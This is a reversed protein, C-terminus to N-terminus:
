CVNVITRTIYYLVSHESLVPTAPFQIRKQSMRIFCSITPLTLSLRINDVYAAPPAFFVQALGGHTLHAAIGQGTLHMPFQPPLSPSLAVCHSLSFSSQSLLILCAPGHLDLPDPCGIWFGPLCSCCPAHLSWHVSSTSSTNLAKLNIFNYYWYIESGRSLRLKINM